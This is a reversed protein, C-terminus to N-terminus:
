GGQRTVCVARMRPPPVQPARTSLRAASTNSQREPSRSQAARGQDPTKQKRGRELTAADRGLAASGLFLDQPASQQAPHGVTGPVGLRPRGTEFPQLVQM